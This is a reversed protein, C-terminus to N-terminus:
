PTGIAPKLSAVLKMSLTTDFLTDKHYLVIVEDSLLVCRLVVYKELFFITLCLRCENAM